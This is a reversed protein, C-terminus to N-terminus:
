PASPYTLPKEGPCGEPPVPYIDGHAQHARLAHCSITIEVYPNTLSGTRHCLSVRGSCPTAAPTGTVRVTPTGTTTPSTTPTNTVTGTPTRTATHVPTLTPPETPVGNPVDFQLGFQNRGQATSMAATDSFLGHALFLVCGTVFVLAAIQLVGWRNGPGNDIAAM